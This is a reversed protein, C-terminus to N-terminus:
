QLIMRVSPLDVDEGEEDSCMVEFIVYKQNSNIPNGTVTEVVKTMPMPMREKTKKKNQFFSYLISVGYSLMTVELGYEDQFFDILQSLTLDGKVDIKDWATWKWDGKSLKSVTKAPESPESFAFMPIALNVFGNKYAELPKGQVVKILEICVLGTVLATTTAIAPIIKGAILRSRLMDAEPIKYNRARLNSCATVFEMHEDIDKDFEVPTLVLGQLSDPSPLQSVVADCQADVDLLGDEANGAKDAEAEETTVAIKVGEKPVFAPVSINKLAELFVGDEWSGEIGYNTARLNASAKVYAMHTADTEDFNLPQPPRKSGSWFPTGTSTIQDVPFNHLLQAISNHFSEQFGLRAFTICDYFSNPRTTVLSERVKKLTDLKTNQQQQLQTMFNPDTLYKNVDEPVQKFVGEFLDRAWQLTHEIQHPFNKLTCVPISKEPPDRTAGYNETLHPVVVQTNGKTGLTGSELLPKQYFLCRQDMYLRADVNDLANTVGDLSEYFQDTFLAETDSGVRSEYAIVDLEPNLRRAAAAGAVSKASGIDSSRFLFQRSLNSKEITDMDTVHVKGGQAGIGMMAWNKLMECGIAGAGVLFYNLQGLKTQFDKGFIVIQSDYRCGLPTVLEPTLNPPVIELADFYFWQKIPMFKGTCAKLVEQGAVGGFFACLPNIVGAATLSLSRVVEEPLEETSGAATNIEKALRLVEDAAAADGPIPLAGGRAAKFAHLAKFATHLVGPRDFKAFDSLLFEGPYELSKALSDFSLSVPMKVQLMYGGTTYPGAGTTDADIEFSYSDKVTVTFTQGSLQPMGNVGDLRVVDGDSLNHRTDDLVSVLAPNAQTISAIICQSPPEGNIDNVLFNTGFDSFVSGFVGAVETAIFQKNNAHCYENVQLQLDMPANVMVVCQFKSLFNPDTLNSSSADSVRVYPNLEALKTLCAAARPVGLDANTLYFQAGLDLWTTPTPDHLTVSKVGALIVNKAIEAGLGNVGVILVDSSAMRAQGERGMVYLQRSYLGEDITPKEEDIDM